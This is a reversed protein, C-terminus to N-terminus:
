APNVESPSVGFKRKFCSSFYRPDSFGVAYAVESVRTAGGNEELMKYASKMRIERLLTSATMGTLQKLKRHLTSKSIGVIEVLQDQDFETNAINQHIISLLNEMFSEDYNSYDLHQIELVNSSKFRSIRAERAAILNEIRSLLVGSSFPKTVYSDAGARYGEEIDDNDVRATLLIFPIHSLNTDGKVRQCLELGSMEPMMSDSVILDVDESELIALAEVGNLARSVRYKKQLISCVLDLLEADDEVVLVRYESEGDTTKEAAVHVVEAVAENVRELSKELQDSSYSERDIPITVIFAVGEGPSNDVIIEGRHLTVLDKVLSLGIGVGVTKYQRFEGDYFRKFLNNMADPSLGEGNDRVTITAESVGSVEDTHYEISVDVQAGTKNYKMANSLLNYLIKNLKDTDFYCQQSERSSRFLLTIGRKDLLPRFSEALQDVFATLDDEAVSLKLNGSEAKRFELIQQLLRLLRNINSMIVNYNGEDIRGRQQEVGASVITLPTFLEHTVNTFFRLKTHNLEEVREREIKELFVRRKLLQRQRQLKVIFAVVLVVILLYLLYAYWRNWIPAVVRLDVESVYDRWVGHADTARVRFRYSGASLNSYYAARDTASCYRWERDHGVLQYAYRVSQPNFYSMSSFKFSVDSYKPLVKIQESYAAVCPSVDRRSLSDLESLSVNDLSIDTIRVRGGVQVDTIEEPCFSVYGSHTGFYINGDRGKAVSNALFTNNPLGSGENYLRFECESLEKAVILKILGINSGLWLAGSDDDIISTINDTPLAILDNISVFRDQEADYLSLGAGDTAVWVRGCRDIFIANVSQSSIGGNKTKYHRRSIVRSTGPEIDLRLLGDSETGCWVVGDGELEITSYKLKQKVVAVIDRMARGEREPAIYFIGTRTSVWLGGVRDECVGSAYYFGKLGRRSLQRLSEGDADFRYEYIGAAIALFLSEGDRSLQIDNILIPSSDDLGFDVNRFIRSRQRGLNNAILGVGVGNLGVWLNNNDDVEITRISRTFADDRHHNDINFRFHRYLTKVMCLGGGQTGIWVNGQSDSEIAEVGNALFNRPDPDNRVMEWVKDDDDDMPVISVGKQTGIWLTNTEVNESISYIFDDELLRGGSSYAVWHNSKNDFPNELMYLGFGFSGVWMRGRSDEFLTHASNMENIKPYSYSRQESIDYRFVGKNWSGAWIDGRSDCIVSKVDIMGGGLEIKVCSDSGRDYRFLGKNTGLYVDGEQSKAISEVSLKSVVPDSCRRLEETRKDMLNLGRETGIYLTKDDDEVLSLITNHTMLDLNDFNSRYIRTEYGDFKCLGSKTAIWILGDSDQFIDYVVDSPLIGLNAVRELRLDYDATPTHPQPAAFLSVNILLTLFVILRFERM